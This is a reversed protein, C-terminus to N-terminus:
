CYQDIHCRMVTPRSQLLDGPSFVACSQPALHPGGAKSQPTRCDRSSTRRSCVSTSWDRLLPAFAKQESNKREVWPGLAAPHTELEGKQVTVNDRPRGRTTYYRRSVARSLIKKEKKITWLIIM